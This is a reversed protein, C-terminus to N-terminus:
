IKVRKARAPISFTMLKDSIPRDIIPSYEIVTPGDKSNVDDVLRRLLHTKRGLWARTQHKASYLVDCTVGRDVASREWKLDDMDTLSLSQAQSPFLMAPVTCGAGLSVGTFGAVTMGLSEDKTFTTDRGDWSSTLFTDDWHGPGDVGHHFIKKRVGATWYVQREGKGKDFDTFEFYLRNPKKFRTIFTMRTKQWRVTGTDQYTWCRSYARVMATVISRARYEKVLNEGSLGPVIRQSCAQRPLAVFAMAVM